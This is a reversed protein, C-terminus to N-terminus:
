AVKITVYAYIDFRYSGTWCKMHVLLYPVVNIPLFWRQQDSDTTQVKGDKKEKRSKNHGLYLVRSLQALLVVWNLGNVVGIWDLVIVVFKITGRAPFMDDMM